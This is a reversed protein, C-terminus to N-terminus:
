KPRRHSDRVRSGDTRYVEMRVDHGARVLHGVITSLPRGFRPVTPSPGITLILKYTFPGGDVM